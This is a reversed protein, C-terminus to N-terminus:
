VTRNVWCEGRGTSTEDKSISGEIINEDYGAENVKPKGEDDHSSIVNDKPNRQQDGALFSSTSALSNEMLVNETEPTLLKAEEEEKTAFNQETEKQEEAIM